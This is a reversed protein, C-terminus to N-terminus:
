QRQRTSAHRPGGAASALSGKGGARVGAWRARVHRCSALAGSCFTPRTRILCRAPPWCCSATPGRTTCSCRWARGALLLLPPARLAPRRSAARQEPAPRGPRVLSLPAPRARACSSTPAPLSCPLSPANPTSTSPPQGWTSRAWVKRRGTGGWSCAETRQKDCAGPVARLRVLVYGEARGKAGVRGVQHGQRRVDGGRHGGGRRLGGPRAWGEEWGVGGVQHGQRWVDGGRRGGGRRLGGPLRRGRRGHPGAPVRAAGACLLGCLPPLRRAGAGRQLGGPVRARQVRRRPVHGHMLPTPHPLSGQGLVHVSGSHQKPGAAHTRRRCAEVGGATSKPWRRLPGQLMPEAPPPRLGGKGGTAGRGPRM